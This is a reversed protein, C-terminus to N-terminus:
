GDERNPNDLRFFTSQRGDRREEQYLFVLDREAVVGLWDDWSIEELRSSRSGGDGNDDRFRIRLSRPRGDDGRTATAPRGGRAEAWARVVEPSRTALTQGPRDAKEDRSHIWKARHTSDSLRSGHRELFRRDDANANTDRHRARTATPM